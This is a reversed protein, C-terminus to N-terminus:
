DKFKIKVTKFNDEYYDYADKDQKDKFSLDYREKIKTVLDDISPPVVNNPIKYKMCYYYRAWEGHWMKNMKVLDNWVDEM